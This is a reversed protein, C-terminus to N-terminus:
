PQLKFDNLKGSIESEQKSSLEFNAHMPKLISVSIKKQAVTEHDLSRTPDPEFEPFSFTHRFLGDTGKTFFAPLTGTQVSTIAVESSLDAGWPLNINIIGSLLHLEASLSREILDVSTAVIRDWHNTWKKLTPNTHGLLLETWIEPTLESSLAIAKAGSLCAIIAGGLTGSAITFPAGTNQGLNPGSIVLDPPSSFLSHIGLNSCDGPTGSVLYAVCNGIKRNTVSIESKRSLATGIWSNDSAPIVVRLEKIWSCSSLKAIFPELLPSEPGDDNILQVVKPAIMSVPKSEPLHSTIM